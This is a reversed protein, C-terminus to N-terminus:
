DKAESWDKGYGIDVKLPVDFPPDVVPPTEMVHRIIPIICDFRDERVLLMVSDHVSSIIYAETPDLTRDLNIIANLAIDSAFGQIPTNVAKREVSGMVSGDLFPFRRRRGSPSEVYFLRRVLKHQADIFSKLTPFGAFFKEQIEDAWAITPRTGTMDYIYEAEFGETIGRAQRGYILGFDIYKAMYREFHTIDEMPKDFVFSAVWRHVDFGKRYAEMLNPDRSLYATVRLELQSYDANVFVWGPPAIFARKIQPGMITPINQLNPDRSSLRGTDAGTIKFDSHVRGDEEVRTLLGDVYTKLVKSKQRYELLLNIFEVMKPSTTPLKSTMQLVEKEGSTLKLGNDVFVAMVQKPSGPNFTDNEVLARLKGLLEEVEATTAIKLEELYEVDIPCGYHEVRSFALSAPTLLNEVLTLLKQSEGELEDWLEFFLLITIHTDIAQYRYFSEWDREDEPTGFFTEFDFKYSQIDWRVRAIDKLGMTAYSRGGTDSSSSGREDQAYKMLMTDWPHKPTLDWGFMERLFSIDFKINHFVIKWDKHFIYREVLWYLDFSSEILRIPVIVDITEEWNVAAAFGISYIKDKRPNLGSTEIDCSVVSAEELDRLANLAEEVTKPIIVTMKPAAEPASKHVWKQIDNAFDRFLDPDRLIASPHYTGVVYVDRGGIHRTTGLGRIKTVTEGLLAKTATSGLLLIKEPSVKEIVSYLRERCAEIAATSPTANGEPHCIVTNTVACDSRSIGVAKMAEWLLQGSRGIFPRKMAVEQRGPAEGIILLRKPVINEEVPPRDRLICSGCPPYNDIM